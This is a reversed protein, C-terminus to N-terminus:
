GIRFRVLEGAGAESSHNAVYAWRGHIAIGAPQVLGDSAIVTRTGDKAIRVVSGTTVGSLIGASQYEVAYLNGRRDAALGLM